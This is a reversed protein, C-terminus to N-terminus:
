SAGGARRFLRRTTDGLMLRLAEVQGTVDALEREVLVKDRLLQIYKAERLKADAELQRIRERELSRRHDSALVLVALVGVIVLLVYAGITLATM